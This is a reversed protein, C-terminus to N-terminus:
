LSKIQLMHTKHPKSDNCYQFTCQSQFARSISFIPNSQRAIEILSSVQNSDWDLM